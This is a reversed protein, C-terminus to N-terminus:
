QDANHSLEIISLLQVSRGHRSPSWNGSKEPSSASSLPSEPSLSSSEPSNMTSFGLHPCPVVDDCMAKM